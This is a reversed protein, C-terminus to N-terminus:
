SHNPTSNIPNGLSKHLSDILLNKCSGAQRAVKILVQKKDNLNKVTNDHAHRRRTSLVNTGIVKPYVSQEEFTNRKQNHIWFPLEHTGLVRDFIYSPAQLLNWRLFMRLHKVFTSIRRQLKLM